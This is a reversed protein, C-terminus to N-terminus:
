RMAFGEGSIETAETLIFFAGKDSDQVARRLNSAQSVRVACMLVTLNAKSYGGQAPIVTVGRKLASYLAGTVESPKDTIIFAVVGRDVGYVISDIVRTSIFITLATYLATEFSRYVISALLIVAGDLILVMRGISFRIFKGSLVKAIIDIGGTSGGRLFVLALGMGGIFGGYLGALLRDGNYQPLLTDFLDILVSMAVTAVGTRLMFRSGLKLFGWIILPLNIALSLAGTPLNTFASVAAAVGIVGGPSIRSPELFVTLAVSYIGTGLIILM